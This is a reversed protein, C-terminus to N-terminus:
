ALFEKLRAEVRGKADLHVFHGADGIVEFSSNAIEQHFLEGLAPPTADDGEGYIILVPLHLSAADHLVDEAVTKKFTEEMGEVSRYDSGITHYLRGRLKKRTKDPLAVTVVKGTKAIANFLLNRVPKKPRIGAAGLLVLKEPTLQGSAVAKIAVAAGNSHAIVGVPQVKIKKLFAAVFNAYESLGWVEAPPPTAGFGPLDLTIVRYKSRFAAMLETFTKGEDGWGHLFLLSKGKGAEQYRTILGNVVVQM